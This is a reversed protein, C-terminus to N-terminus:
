RRTAATREEELGYLRIKRYLTKVSIGLRAATERRNWRHTRLAALITRQELEKLTGEDAVPCPADRLEPPLHSAAVPAGACVLAACELANRLERVNGPWAYARLLAEAAPSLRLEAEGAPRSRALHRAIALIDAPRERLPPIHINVTNLRYYLDARFRGAATEQKLDRNTLALVRLDVRVLETGGVRYFTGTELVRLLKAQVAPALEGIEDLLVTGGDAVEFLGTKRTVAGTYAGKEHGFLESETLTDAIAACNIDVLERRARTSTRHIAQAVLEKGVGSEGTILVSATTPAVRRIVEAVLAMEPSEFVIEPADAAVVCAASRQVAEVLALGLSTGATAYVYDDAAARVAAAAAEVSPRETLVIATAAPAQAKLRRVLESGDGDGGADAAVVVSSPDRALAAAAAAGDVQRVDYGASAVQTALARRRTPDADILLVRRLRATSSM